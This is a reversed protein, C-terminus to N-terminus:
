GPGESEQQSTSVDAAQPRIQAVAGAGANGALLSKATQGRYLWVGGMENCELPQTSIIPTTVGEEGGKGGM